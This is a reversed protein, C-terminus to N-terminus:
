REKIFDRLLKALAEPKELMLMHGAGEVLELKADPIHDVLYRSYKVPTMQDEGGCLVLTPVRIEGLRDMMDFKDCALFDAHVVRAPVEAMRSLALEKLDSDANTSFAWTTVLGAAQPYSEENETLALIQPHVRLKAGSGVLVLGKVRDPIEMSITLSIAGGMSHGVLVVAGLNLADMWKTVRRAYGGITEEPNGSSRGHGPLDVGYVQAWEMRRLEPPWNLHTGGAGHILVIPLHEVPSARGSFHSYYIGAEVPL